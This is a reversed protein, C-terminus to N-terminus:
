ICWTLLSCCCDFKAQALKREKCMSHCIKDHDYIFVLINVLLNVFSHVLNWLEGIEPYFLETSLDVLSTEFYGQIEGNNM